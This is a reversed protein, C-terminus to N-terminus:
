ETSTTYSKLKKNLYSFYNNKIAASSMKLKLAIGENIALIEEDTYEKETYYKMSNTSSSYYGVENKWSSDAFVAISEYEKSLLDSGLYIRSDYEVGFLNALTPTLNVYTSYQNFEKKEMGKNYIVFPVQDMNNDEDIDYGLAEGLNDTKIAYPYHDCFIAIVTDELIGREELGNLLIGLADDVVKLRSM